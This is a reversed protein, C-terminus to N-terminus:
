LEGMLNEAYEWPVGKVKDALALFEHASPGDACSSEFLDHAYSFPMSRYSKSASGFRREVVPFFAGRPLGAYDDLATAIARNTGEVMDLFQPNGRIHQREHDRSKFAAVVALREISM